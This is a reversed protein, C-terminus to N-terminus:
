RNRENRRLASHTHKKKTQNYKTLSVLKMCVSSVTPFLFFVVSSFSFIGTHTHTHENLVFLKLDQAVYGLQFSNFTRIFSEYVSFICKENHM